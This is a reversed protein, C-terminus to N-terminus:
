RTTLNRAVMTPSDQKALFIGREPPVQPDLSPDVAFRHEQQNGDSTSTGLSGKDAFKHCGKSGHHFKAFNLQQEIGSIM